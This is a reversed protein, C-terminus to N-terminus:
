YSDSSTPVYRAVNYDFDCRAGDLKVTVSYVMEGDADPAATGISTIFGTFVWIGESENAATPVPTTLTWTGVTRGAAYGHLILYEAYVYGATFSIEGDDPLGVLNSKSTSALGTTDVPPLALSPINVTKLVTIPTATSAVTVSLTTGQGTLASTSM